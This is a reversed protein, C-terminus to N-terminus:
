DGNITIIDIADKGIVHIDYPEPKCNMLAELLEPNDKFYQERRKQITVFDIIHVKKEM